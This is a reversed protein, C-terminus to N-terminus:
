AGSLSPVTVAAGEVLEWSGQFYGQPPPPVAWSGPPISRPAPPTPRVLVRWPLASARSHPTGNHGQPASVGPSHAPSTQPERGPGEACQGGQRAGGPVDRPFGEWDGRDADRLLAEGLVAGRGPPLGGSPWGMRPTVQTLTPAAGRKARPGPGLAGRLRHVAGQGHAGPELVRPHPEQSGLGQSLAPSEASPARPEM